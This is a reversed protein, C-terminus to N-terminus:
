ATIQKPPRGVPNGTPKYHKKYSRHRAAKGKASAHYKKQAIKQKRKREAEAQQMEEMAAKLNELYINHQVIEGEHEFEENDSNDSM